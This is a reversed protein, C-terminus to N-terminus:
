TFVPATYTLQLQFIICYIAIVLVLWTLGRAPSANRPVRPVKPFKAVNEQWICTFVLCLRVMQARLGQPQAM